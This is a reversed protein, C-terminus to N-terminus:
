RGKCCTNAHNWLTKSPLVFLKCFANTDLQSRFIDANELLIIVHLRGSLERSVSMINQWIDIPSSQVCELIVDGNEFALVAKEITDCASPFAKLASNYLQPSKFDQLVDEFYSRIALGTSSRPHIHFREKSHLGCIKNYINSLEQQSWAQDPSVNHAHYIGLPKTQVEVVRKYLGASSLSSLAATWTAVALAVVDNYIFYPSLQRLILGLPLGVSAALM